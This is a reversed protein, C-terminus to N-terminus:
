QKKSSDTNKLLYKKKPAIPIPAIKEEDYVATETFYPAEPTMGFNMM